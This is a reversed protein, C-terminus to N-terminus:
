YYCKTIGQTFKEHWDSKGHIRLLASQKKFETLITRDLSCVKNYAALSNKYKGIAFYTRAAGKLCNINDNEVKLCATYYRSALEYNEKEEFVKGASEQAFANKPFQRAANSLIKEAQVKNQKHQQTIGLYVHNEATKPSLRVAVQCSQLSEEFYNDVTFLRCLETYFKPKDGFQKIMDHLVLRSEYNNKKLQFLDYIGWYAKEYKPQISLAKRYKIAADDHKDIKVYANAQLYYLNPYNPYRPILQNLVRIESLYNKDARYAAALDLYSELSDEELLQQYQEIAKSYEKNKMYLSALVKRFKKNKPDKELRSRLISIKQHISYKPKEQQGKTSSTESKKETASLYVPSFIFVLILFLKSLLNLM